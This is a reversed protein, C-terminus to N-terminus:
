YVGAEWKQRWPDETEGGTELEAKGKLASEGQGSGHSGGGQIAPHPGLNTIKGKVSRQLGRERTTRIM